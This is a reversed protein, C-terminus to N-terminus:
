RWSIQLILLEPNSMFEVQSNNELLQYIQKEIILQEYLTDLVEKNSTRITLSKRDVTQKLLENYKDIDAVNFYLDNKYFYEAEISECKPTPVINDIGYSRLLQERTVNFYYYSIERKNDALMGKSNTCDVMYWQNDICVANWAHGVGNENVGTVVTCPIGVKKCLYQFMKTYGLCVSKGLTVSYLSQNYNSEVSYETNEAIYDYIIKEKEYDTMNVEIHSLVDAAYDELDKEAQEIDELTMNYVPILTITGDKHEIYKYNDIYFIEPNDYMVSKFLIKLKDTDSMKIEISAQRNKLAYEIQNYIEKQKESTLQSWYWKDSISEKIETNELNAETELEYPKIGEIYTVEKVESGCGTVVSSIVLVHLFAIVKNFKM